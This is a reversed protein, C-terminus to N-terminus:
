FFDNLFTTQAQTQTCILCWLCLYIHLFTRTVQLFVSICSVSPYMLVEPWLSVQRVTWIVVMYSLSSCLCILQLRKKTLHSILCCQASCGSLCWCVFCFKNFGNEDFSAAWTAAPSVAVTNVYWLKMVAVSFVSFFTWSQTKARVQGARLFRLHDEDHYDPWLEPSAKVRRM